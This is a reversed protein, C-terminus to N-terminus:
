APYEKFGNLPFNFLVRNLESRMILEKNGVHVCPVNGKNFFERLSFDNVGLKRAVEQFSLLNRKVIDINVQPVQFNYWDDYPAVVRGIATRYQNAVNHLHSRSFYGNNKSVAARDKLAVRIGVIWNKIKSVIGTPSVKKNVLHEREEILRIIENASANEANRLFTEHQALVTRLQTELEPCTKSSLVSEAVVISVKLAMNLDVKPKGTKNSQYEGVLTATRLTANKGEVKGSLDRALTSYKNLQSYDNSFFYQIPNEIDYVFQSNEIDQEYNQHWIHNNPSDYSVVSTYSDQIYHLAVGLYYFANQLNDQLYWQRARMLNNRIAESKGYHHPYDKWQDPAVVGEKFRSYVEGSLTIGLRRLAENSIRVHTKRLMGLGTVLLPHERIGFASSKHNTFIRDERKKVEFM